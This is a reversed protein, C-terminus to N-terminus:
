WFNTYVDYTEAHIYILAKDGIFLSDPKLNNALLIYSANRALMSPAEQNFTSM